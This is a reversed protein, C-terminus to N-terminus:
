PRSASIVCSTLGGVFDALSLGEPHPMITVFSPKVKSFLGRAAMEGWGITVEAEPRYFAFM